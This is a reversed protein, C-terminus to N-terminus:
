CLFACFLSVCHRGVANTFLIPSFFFLKPGPLTDPLHRSNFNHHLDSETIVAPVTNTSTNMPQLYAAHVLRLQLLSIVIM